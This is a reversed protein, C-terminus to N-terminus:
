IRFSVLPNKKLFVAIRFRQCHLRILRDDNLVVGIENLVEQIKELTDVEIYFRVAQKRKHEVKTLLAANIVCIVTTILAGGYFGYGFAVGIAGTVWMGAATTLGAVTSNNKVMIIGTGLFGIGSVVSASIRFVDGNMGLHRSVYVSCLATMAGGLCILIHTRLGAARGHRGRESGIIGGAVVALLLRLIVTVQNFSEIYSIFSRIQEM